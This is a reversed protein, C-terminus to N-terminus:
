LKKVRVGRYLSGVQVIDSSLIAREHLNYHLIKYQSNKYRTHLYLSGFIDSTLISLLNVSM